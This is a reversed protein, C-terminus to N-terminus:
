REAGEDKAQGSSIVDRRRKKKKNESVSAEQRAKMEPQPAVPLPFGLFIM